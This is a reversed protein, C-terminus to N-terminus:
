LHVRLVVQQSNDLSGETFHFSAGMYCQVKTRNLMYFRVDTRNYVSSRYYPDGRHLQNGYLEYDSFQPNGAYLRDRLEFRWKRLM